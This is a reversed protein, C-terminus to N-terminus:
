PTQSAQASESLYDCISKFVPAANVSGSSGNETLVVISYKPAEAPYFGVFWTNNKRKGEANFSGTQATATKGGAGGTDPKAKKGTGNEVTNIMFSRLLAATHESIVRKPQANEFLEVIDGFEDYVSTVLRPTPRLGGNAVISVMIAAQLPTAMLDGQGISFNAIAASVSLTNKEPLTGAASTMGEALRNAIGFGFREAVDRIVEGGVSLASKIFFPNCSNAFADSLNEKGHGNENHCSVDRNGIHIYGRCTYILEAANQEILAAATIIKFASGINFPSFARNLLPAREDLLSAAVNNPDYDPFSECVLIDGNSADMVVVAGCENEEVSEFALRSFQSLYKDITLSIGGAGGSGTHSISTSSLTGNRATVSISASIETDSKLVGDFAAELGCVGVRRNEATYGIIHAAIGNSPFRRPINILAVNELRINNDSVRLAFPFGESILNSVRGATSGSAEALRETAFAGGKLPPVCVAYTDEQGGLLSIGNRDLIDGRQTALTVSYKRGNALLSLKSDNHMVHFIRM